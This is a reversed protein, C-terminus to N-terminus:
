STQKCVVRGNWVELRTKTADGMPADAVAWVTFIDRERERKKEVLTGESRSRESEHRSVLVTCWACV